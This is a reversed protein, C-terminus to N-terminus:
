AEFEAWTFEDLAEREWDLMPRSGALVTQALSMWSLSSELEQSPASLAQVQREVGDMFSISGTPSSAKASWTISAATSSDWRRQFGAQPAAIMHIGLAM